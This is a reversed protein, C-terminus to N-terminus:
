KDMKFRAGAGDTYNPKPYLVVLDGENLGEVVEANLESTIGLKVPKEHMKNNEDVVFVVKNGNGDEKLMDFSIIPVDKKVNTTIKNNVTLGPKMNISGDKISILVEVFTEEGTPVNKKKAVPSIKEVVGKVIDEGRIADGIVVTNQGVAIDKAYFEKVDAKIRLKSPDVIVFGPTATNTFAGEELNIDTIVGDIPSISSNVMKKIKTELETIKLTIAELSKQSIKIEIDKNAKSQLNYKKVEALNEEATKKNQEANSLAMDADAKLSDQRELESKSVANADFLAKTLEYNKIAEVQMRKANEIGKDALKVASELMGINKTDDTAKLKSIKLEEIQKSIKLQDLESYTSSLDFNILKQNKTVKQNKEVLINEIKMPTEYYIEAKEIEEVVGSATVVSSIEGREVKKIQVDFIRGSVTPMSARSVNAVIIMAIVAIVGVAIIVKKNM